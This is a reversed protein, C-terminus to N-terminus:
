GLAFTKLYTSGGSSGGASTALASLSRVGLTTVPIPTTNAITLTTGSIVYSDSHQLVGDLYVLLAEESTISRSLTFVNTSGDVEFKESYVNALSTYTNYLNATVNDVNSSVSNLNAQLTIYTAYDNARTDLLTNYTNATLTTFSNYDNARTDLLTNYTNATLTNFSNFDNAQAALLTNYTNATLTTYSNYDNAATTGTLTTLNSQVTGIATVLTVAINADNELAAAIEALTDLTSPAAGIVSTLNAQVSNISANLTTYTAFDNARTDLLTNYTNATLVSVNSAVETKSAFDSSGIDSTDIQGLRLKTM